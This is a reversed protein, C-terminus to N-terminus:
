SGRPTATLTLPRPSVFGSSTESGRLKAHGRGGGHAEPDTRFPDSRASQILEVKKAAHMCSEGGPRGAWRVHLYWREMIHMSRMQYMCRSLMYNM